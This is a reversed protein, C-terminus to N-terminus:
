ARNAMTTLKTPQIGFRRKFSRTFYSPSSFGSDYAIQSINGDQQKVRKFSRRMRIEHLYGSVSTGSLANMKRFIGSQSINLQGALTDLNITGNEELENVADFLDFLFKEESNSLVRFPVMPPLNKHGNALLKGALSSVLISGSKGIACLHLALNITGSFITDYDESVPLGSAIGIRLECKFQKRVKKFASCLEMAFQVALDSEHFSILEAEGNDVRTAGPNNRLLESYTEIFDDEEENLGLHEMALITRYGSDPITNTFELLDYENVNTEQSIFNIHEGGKIEIIQCPGVGHVEQHLAICSAIDPAELICFISKADINVIYVLYTIGYKNLKSLNRAHSQRLEERTPNYASPLKHIDMFLPM